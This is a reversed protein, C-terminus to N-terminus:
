APEAVPQDGQSLGHARENIAKNAEDILESVLRAPIVYGNFKRDSWTLGTTPSTYTGGNTILPLQEVLVNDKALLKALGGLHEYGVTIKRAALRRDTEDAKPNPIFRFEQKMETGERYRSYQLYGFLLEKFLPANKTFFAATTSMSTLYGFLAALLVFHVASISCM